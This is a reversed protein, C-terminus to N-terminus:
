CSYKIDKLDANMKNNLM